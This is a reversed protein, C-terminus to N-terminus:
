NNQMVHAMAKSLQNAGTDEKLQDFSKHFIVKGEQMYVVETIIEDLESLVHSTILILKGNAKEKTIKAKLIETSVPDLGATPEDLILIDPQFMFALCAGVKQRTGGSLTRMRKEMIAGLNLRQVLEDDTNRTFPKRIDKMMHIVQAITMNDPFRGVQAMYGISSRYKWDNKIDYNNVTILGSDPVVMGLLCKIFTTKGSGNPGILAISEGKNLTLNINDLATLKGFKKIINSARIM